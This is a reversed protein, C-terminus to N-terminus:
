MINIFRMLVNSVPFPSRLWDWEHFSKIEYSETSWWDFLCLEVNTQWDPRYIWSLLWWIEVQIFSITSHNSINAKQLSQLSQCLLILVSGGLSCRLCHNVDLFLELSGTDGSVPISSRSVEGTWDHWSMVSMYVICIEYDCTM